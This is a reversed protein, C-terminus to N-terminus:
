CCIACRADVQLQRQRRIAYRFIAYRLADAAALHFSDARFPLPTFLTHRQCILTAAAAPAYRPLMAIDVRLM